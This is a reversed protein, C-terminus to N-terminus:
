NIVDDVVDAGAAFAVVVAIALLSLTVTVCLRLSLVSRYCYFVSWLLLMLPSQSQHKTEDKDNCLYSLLIFCGFRGVACGLSSFPGISLHGLFGWVHSFWVVIWIRFWPGVFVPRRGM